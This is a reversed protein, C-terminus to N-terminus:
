TSPTWRSASPWSGWPGCRPAASQARSLDGSFPGLGARNIAALAGPLLVGGLLVSQVTPRGDTPRLRRWLAASGAPARLRRGSGLGQAVEYNFAYVPALMAEYADPSRPGTTPIGTLRGVGAIALVEIAPVTNHCDLYHGHTAWVDQRLHLGPYAMAVERAGLARALRAALGSRGPRWSEVTGLPASAGRQRRREIWDAAPRHDHNGPVVVVQADGAAEGIDALVPGARELVRPLPRERLELVDGLLVVRDAHTIAELLRQRVGAHRLVDSRSAIGLHLDSVVLSRM